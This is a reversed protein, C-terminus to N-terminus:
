EGAEGKRLMNINKLVVEISTLIMLVAGIPVSSYPVSMPIQLGVSVNTGGTKVLQISYLLLFCLFVIGVLTSCITFVCRARPKLRGILVDVQLHSSKRIAIASAIIVEFIFLYRTLEESWANSNSFIYRLIVQYVMVFLMVAVAIALVIKEIKEVVDLFKSYGKLM